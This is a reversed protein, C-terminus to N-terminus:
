NQNIQCIISIQIEMILIILLKPEVYYTNSVVALPAMLITLSNYFLYLERTHEITNTTVRDQIHVFLCLYGLYSMFRGVFLQLYLPVYLVGKNTSGFSKVILILM